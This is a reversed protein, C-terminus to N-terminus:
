FDPKVPKQDHWWVDTLYGYLSTQQPWKLERRAAVWQTKAHFLPIMYHGALLARDLARAAKVLDPRSRANALKSVLADIKKSRVAPYNRAGQADAAARSWYFEQENGPSLSMFWRYFIMQYNYSRLRRQYQSDDVFRVSATIALRKLQQVFVLAIRENQRSRALIEFQFPAGTKISVMRNNRVVWGAQKFLELAQRRKARQSLPTPTKQSLALESRDFFSKTPQWLNHFLNKNIWDRDFALSLAQRVRRDAFLARRTNFAMAWMGSPTRLAFSAKRVEGKHLAPFDYGRAWRAPDHEERMDYKGAKFSEFSSNEDRYYDYTIQNFNFRGHNVALDKGWYNKDRRYVVYKGPQSQAVVYPGSGLPPVFRSQGFVHRTFHKKSIIPMLGIILPMEWNGDSTFFFKVRRAGIKEMSSIKSYYFRHNPRGHERLTQASFIVDEVRLPSGDSFRTSDHLTFVVWSRDPAVEVKKALLGYLTFPEDYSRAMLSEYVFERVGYASTGTIILPNLSDFTGTIAFRVQGGKPADPNVYNFHTFTPPYLPAGHMAIAHDDALAATPWAALLIIFVRISTKPARFIFVRKAARM